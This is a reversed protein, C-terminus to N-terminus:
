MASILAAVAHILIVFVHHAEACYYHVMTAPSVTDKLSCHWSALQRLLLLCPMLLGPGILQLQQCIHLLL